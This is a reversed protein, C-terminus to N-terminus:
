GAIVLSVSLNSHVNGVGPVHGQEGFTCFGLIPIDGLRGRLRSLVEEIRSGVAGACGACYILFAGRADRPEINAAALCRDVLRDVIGVLSDASGSMLCVTAGQPAEAFVDIRGEPHAHAPHLLLYFPQAADGGRAIGVPTVATQMLLNGGERVEAAISDGIWGHLVETAPRGDLKEIARGNSATIVARKDTPEYPAEIVAGLRVSAGWLGALTVGERLVGRDTFISWAGEITHDAASGGFVPVGPLVDAIGALIEEERGPTVALFVLRPPEGAPGSSALARAAKRGAERAGEALDASGVAFSADQGAGLLLVGVGGNAGMVVGSGTLVGLSTTAGHLPVGPLAERFAAHVVSADHDVTAAVIALRPEKGGLAHRAVSAAEHAAARTEPAASHGAGMVLDSM